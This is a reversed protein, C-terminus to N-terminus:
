HGPLVQSGLASTLLAEMADDILTEGQEPTVRQAAILTATGQVTAAFLLKFRERTDDGASDALGGDLVTFLRGAAEQVPGAPGNSKSAFMLEMLAANEVAFAVYARGVLRLRERDLGPDRLAAVVRETLRDFGREALADLLAQRDIFHSRPAGHSVGAQRALERLSLGDVGEARLMVEAQELLVERLNGHHFPRRM